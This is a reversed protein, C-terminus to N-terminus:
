YYKPECACWCPLREVSIVLESYCINKGKKLIHLHWRLHAVTSMQSMIFIVLLNGFGAILLRWDLM